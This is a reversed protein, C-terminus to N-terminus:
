KAHRPAAMSPSRDPFPRTGTLMEFLIAGFEWIDKRKDVPKGREQEPSMYAGTVQITAARQLTEIDSQLQTTQTQKAEIAKTIESM